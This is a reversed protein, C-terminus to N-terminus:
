SPRYTRGPTTFVSPNPSNPFITMSLRLRERRPPTKRGLAHRLALQPWPEDGEGGQQHGGIALPNRIAGEARLQYSRAISVIWGENEESREPM